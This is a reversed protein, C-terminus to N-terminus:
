GGRHMSAFSSDMGESDNSKDKDKEKTLGGMSSEIKHAVWDWYGLNTDGINVLYQWAERPFYPNSDWVDEPIFGVTDAIQKTPDFGKTGTHGFGNAGRDTEDLSDVPTWEPTEHKLIIIQAIRDGKEVVIPYDGHNHLNIRIEGRYGSDIVGAGVELNHKFSLGSRSVVKGVYGAPIAMFLGTDFQASHRPIITKTEASAIDFGADGEKARVLPYPSIYPIKM